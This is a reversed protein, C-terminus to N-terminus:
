SGDTRSEPFHFWTKKYPLLQSLWLWREVGEYYNRVGIFLKMKIFYLANM